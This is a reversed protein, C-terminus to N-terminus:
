AEAWRESGGGEDWHDIERMEGRWPCESGWKLSGYRATITNAASDSVADWGDM